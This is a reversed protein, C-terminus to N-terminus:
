SDIQKIRRKHRDAHSFSTSLFASVIEWGTSEDIFRAPLSIINSDNDERTEIAMRPSWVVAARIGRLRNASMAMGQGSGCVMIGKGDHKLVAKALQSALGPYDVPKRSFTGFDEFAIKREALKHCIKEKLDFGAHDAALFIM